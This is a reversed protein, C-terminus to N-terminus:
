APVPAFLRAASRTRLTELLEAQRTARELLTDFRAADLRADVDALARLTRWGSAKGEVGLRMAELELVDSLPSRDALHANPKLHVAKEALRGIAVKARSVQIGLRAMTEMLAERDEEVEKAFAALQPGAPHDRHEHAVRRALEVGASAGALHDNLYIGLLRSSDHGNTHEM